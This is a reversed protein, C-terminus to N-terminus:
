WDVRSFPLFATARRLHMQAFAGGRARVRPKDRFRGHDWLSQLRASQKESFLASKVHFKVLGFEDLILAGGGYLTVTRRDPMADPKRVGHQALERGELELYEVYEIVTERVFAGDDGQRVAPRVSQVRVFSDDDIEFVRRNEWLFQFCETPDTQLPTQHLGARTVADQMSISPSDWRGLARGDDHVGYQRYMEPVFHRIRYRSDDPYVQEDATVMARVFDAFRVDVVPLYDIARIVVTLLRDALDSAEEVVRARGLAGSQTDALTVLRAHWIAVYARMMAAVLLEGLDHIESGDTSMTQLLDRHPALRLSARLATRRAGAVASGLEQALGFLPSDELKDLDLAARPIRDKRWFSRASRLLSDVVDRSSLVSLLAVVDAFGEHFAAQEPSSPDAYRSRLGDLLAHTTEHAIM